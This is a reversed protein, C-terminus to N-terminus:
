RYLYDDHTRAIPKPTGTSGGSLQFLAVSAADPSARHPEPPGDLEALTVYTTAPDAPPRVLNTFEPFVVADLGGAECAVIQALDVVDLGRLPAPVYAWGGVRVL